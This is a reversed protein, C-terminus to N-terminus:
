VECRQIMTGNVKYAFRLKQERSARVSFVSYVEAFEKINLSGSLDKDFLKAIRTKFPNHKFYPLEFLELTTVTGSGDKDLKKFSAIIKTVETDTFNFVMKIEEEMRLEQESKHKAQIIGM